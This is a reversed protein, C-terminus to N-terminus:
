AAPPLDTDNNGLTALWGAGHNRGACSCDCAPGKAGTCRADCKKDSKHGTVFNQKVNTSNCNTCRADQYAEITKKNAVDRRLYHVIRKGYYGISNKVEYDYARVLKCKNCAFIVRQTVIPKITTATTM